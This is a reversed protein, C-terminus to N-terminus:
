RYMPDKCNNSQKFVPAVRERRWIKDGARKPNERFHQNREAFYRDISATCEEISEYNSNHIIARAMGSFVSEIVNLFQACAPLPALVIEPNYNEAKYVSQNVRRVEGEFKRSGHWSAADWSLFLREKDKYQQILVHMLQIMEETSKRKAYFHTMQNTSLELAGIMLLAGKSKQFQPVVPKEGPAALVLGGRKKVAFPGYEDISFFSESEKLNALIATIARLKAGYEPDTSTLVKKAKRYRYGASKIINKIGHKNLPHGDAKMAHQLDEMRCSTRNFGYTSPPSHLIAFLADAYEQMEEKKQRYKRAGLLGKFGNKKYCEVYKSVSHRNVHLERSIWRQSEGRLHALVSVAKVRERRNGNALRDRVIEIDGPDMYIGATLAFDCIPVDRLLLVKIWSEDNGSPKDINKEEVRDSVSKLQGKSNWPTEYIELSAWKRV